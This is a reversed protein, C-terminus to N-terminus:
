KLNCILSLTYSLIVTKGNEIESTKKFVSGQLMWSANIWVVSTLCLAKQVIPYKHAKLWKNVGLLFFISLFVVIFSRFFDFKYCKNETGYLREGVSQYKNKREWTQIWHKSSINAKKLSSPSSGVSYGTDPHPKLIEWLNM